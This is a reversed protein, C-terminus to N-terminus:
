KGMWSNRVDLNDEYLCRAKVAPLEVLRKKKVGGNSEADVINNVVL